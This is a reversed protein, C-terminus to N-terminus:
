ADAQRRGQRLRRPRVTVLDRSCIDGLTTSKPDPDEALARVVIDRDTVVGCVVAGDLVVVDGINRDKMRKAADDLRSSAAMTVPVPTM